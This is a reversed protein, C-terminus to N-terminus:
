SLQHRVPTANPGQVKAVQARAKEYLRLKEEESTPWQRQGNPGSSPGSEASNASRQTLQPIDQPQPNTVTFRNGGGSGTPRASMSNSSTTPAQKTSGFEDVLGNAGFRTAAPTTAEDSPRIINSSIPLTNYANGANGSFNARNLPLTAAVAEAPRGRVANVRPPVVAPVPAVSGDHGAPSLSLSSAPGIRSSFM